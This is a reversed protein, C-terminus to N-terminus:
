PQRAGLESMTGITLVGVLVDLATRIAAARDSLDMDAALDYLRENYGDLGASALQRFSVSAVADLRDPDTLNDPLGGLTQHTASCALEVLRAATPAHDAAAAMLDTQCPTCADFAAGVLHGLLATDVGRGYPDHGDGPFGAHMHDRSM